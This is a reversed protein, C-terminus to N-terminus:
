MRDPKEHVRTVRTAMYIIKGLDFDKVSRREGSESIHSLVTTKWQSIGM